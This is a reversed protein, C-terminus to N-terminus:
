CDVSNWAKRIGMKQVMQFDMWLNGMVPVLCKEKWIATELGWWMMKRKEMLLGLTEKLNGM